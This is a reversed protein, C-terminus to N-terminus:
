LQISIDDSERYVAPFTTLKFLSYPPAMAHKKQIHFFFNLSNREGSSTQLASVFIMKM